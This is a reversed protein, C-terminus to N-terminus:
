IEIVTLSEYLFNHVKTDKQDFWECKCQGNGIAIVTMRPGGSKLEVIDGINIQGNAM